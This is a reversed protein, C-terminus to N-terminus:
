DNVVKQIYCFCEHAILSPNKNTIDVVLDNENLPGYDVANTKNFLAITRAQSAISLHLPGTDASVYFGCAKFFAGLLRLNKNSYELCQSNLKSPIDPSLIDIIVINKQLKLLEKHWENWWEDSLKKDFRANRFLAITISNLPMDATELLNEKEEQAIVLEKATLKIDLEINKKPIDATFLKLLELPRSGSHTYLNEYVVTHSLNIFTKENLFSAKFKANLLSTVIESSISGDSINMALDYKKKRVRKILTYLNLPQKLLSRPIDIVTDVNSMPKLIDGALKMGVVVDVKVKPLIKNIENILPTLLIINGIRYNPRVIVIHKIEDKDITSQVCDGQVVNGFVKYLYSRFVRRFKTHLPIKM